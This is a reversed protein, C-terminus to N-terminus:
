NLQSQKRNYFEVTYIITVLCEVYAQRNVTNQGALNEAAWIVWTDDDDPSANTLATHAGDDDAVSKSAWNNYLTVKSGEDCIVGHRTSPDEMM